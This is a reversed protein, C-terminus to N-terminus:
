EIPWLILIILAGIFAALTVFFLVPLLNRWRGFMEEEDKM